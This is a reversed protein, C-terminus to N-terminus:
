QCNYNILVIMMRMMENWRQNSYNVLSLMSLSSAFSHPSLSTLKVLFRNSSQHIFSMNPHIHCIQIFSYSMNPHISWPCLRILPSHLLPPLFWISIFCCLNPPLSPIPGSLRTKKYRRTDSGNWFGVVARKLWHYTYSFFLILLLLPISQWNWDTILTHSALPSHSINTQTRLLPMLVHHWHQSLSHILIYSGSLILTHLLLLLLLLREDVVTAAFLSSSLTVSYPLLSVSWCAHINWRRDVRKREEKEEEWPCLIILLYLIQRKGTM